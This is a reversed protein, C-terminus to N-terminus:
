NIQQALYGGLLVAFLCLVFSLFVYLLAEGYFGDRFMNVLELSFTSFTTLGGCFGIMLFPKLPAFCTAKKMCLFFVFGIIFCGIVNALLTYLPFVHVFYRNVFLSILYRLVSGLGGGLFILLVGQM